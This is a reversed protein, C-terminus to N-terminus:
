RKGFLIYGLLAFTIGMFFVVSFTENTLISGFVDMLGSDPEFEVVDDFQDEIDEINITPSTELVDGMEDAESEIPRMQDGFQDTRDGDGVFFKEIAIWIKQLLGVEGSTGPRAIYGMVQPIEFRFSNSSTTTVGYVYLYVWENYPVNSIDMHIVVRNREVAPDSSEYMSYSVPIFVNSASYASISNFAMDNTYITLDISDLGAIDRVDFALRESVYTTYQSSDLFDEADFHYSLSNVGTLEERFSGIRFISDYPLAVSLSGPYYAKASIITIESGKTSLFQFIENTEGDLDRTYWITNPIGLASKSLTANSFSKINVDSACQIVIEVDGMGGIADVPFEIQDHGSSIFTFDSNVNGEVYCYGQEMLDVYNKTETASVPFVMCPLLLFVLFFSILRKM